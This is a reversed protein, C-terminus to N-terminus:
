ILTPLVVEDLYISLKNTDDFANIYVQLTVIDYQYEVYFKDIAYLRIILDGTKVITLFHAHQHILYIQERAPHNKFEQYTM